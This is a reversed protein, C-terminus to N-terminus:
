VIFQMFLMIHLLLFLITAHSKSCEATETVARVELIANKQSENVKGALCCHAIANQIIPKNSKASPEKFLRPGSSLFPFVCVSSIISFVFLMINYICQLPATFTHIEGNYEAVSTISSATSGNDWDREMNRSANRSLIPFSEVSEGRCCM